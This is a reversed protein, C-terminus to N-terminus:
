SNWNENEVYVLIKDLLKPISEIELLKQKISIKLILYSALTNAFQKVDTFQSLSSLADSPITRNLRAYSEFRSLLRRVM